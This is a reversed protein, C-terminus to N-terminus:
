LKNAKVFNVFSPVALRRGDNCNKFYRAAPHGQENSHGPHATIRKVKRFFDLKGELSSLVNVNSETEGSLYSDKAKSTMTSNRVNRTASIGNSGGERADRKSGDSLETRKFSGTNTKQIQITRSTIIDKMETQALIRETLGQELAV